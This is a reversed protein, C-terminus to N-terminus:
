PSELTLSANQEQRGRQGSIGKVHPQDSHKHGHGAVMMLLGFWSMIFLVISIVALARASNLQGVESAAADPPLSRLRKKVARLVFFGVGFMNCWVSFAGLLILDKHSTKEGIRKSM